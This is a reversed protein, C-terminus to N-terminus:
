FGKEIMLRMAVELEEIKENLEKQTKKQESIDFIVGRFGVLKNDRIIRSFYLHAAFLSGDERKAIFEFNSLKADSFEPIRQSTSEDELTESFLNKISFGNLLNSSDYGFLKEAMHNVYTLKLDTNMEFVTQPLLDTLEKYKTESSLLEETKEKVKIELLRQYRKSLLYLLASFLATLLSGVILPWLWPPTVEVTKVIGELDEIISKYYISDTDEKLIRIEQDIVNKLYETKEGGKTYVFKLEIPNFVISTRRVNYNAENQSGFLRNVIAIDARGDEVAKLNEAYSGTAIFEASYGFSKLLNEIGLPGVHHIDGDLVAIKKGALQSISNIELGISSYVGAWNIFATESSFDYLKSREVSYGVDVMIDLEGSEVRDLGERFTGPIYQIEWNQRIAIYDLVEAWFGRAMGQDDRYIKPANEYIGVRVVMRESGLTEQASIFGAFINFVVLSLSLLLLLNSFNNKLRKLM